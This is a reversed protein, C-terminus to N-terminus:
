RLREAHDLLHQQDRDRHHEDLVHERRDHQPQLLRRQPDRRLRRPEGPDPRRHDQGRVLRGARDLDPDLREGARELRGRDPDRLHQRRHHRRLHLQQPQRRRGPRVSRTAGFTLAPTYTGDLDTPQAIVQWSKGQNITSFVRGATSSIIVEDSNVPNVTLNGFPIEGNDYTLFSTPWQPDNPAQILGNTRSVFIEGGDTSVQLFNTFSGGFGPYNYQYVLYNGTSPSPQQGTQVGIGDNDGNLPAPSIASLDGNSLISPDSATLGVSQGNGYILSGATTAGATSPEIAGYYFQTVQLNGNRGYSPSVATGVGPDLTGNDDVGTFIGQDDGIILRPEGTM